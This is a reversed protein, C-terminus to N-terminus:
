SPVKGIREILLARARALRSMVTGVPAGTAEAIERYSMDNFERMALAERFPAPLDAIASQLMAADARAIVEAEPSAARPADSSDREVSELDDTLALDKPRNRAMWTFATNRVIAILWARPNHGRFKSVGSMARLCAEQVVDEADVASGTLWRALRYADDLHPTVVANFTREDFTRDPKDEFARSGAPNHPNM